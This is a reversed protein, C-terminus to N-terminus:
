KFNKVSTKIVTERDIVRYTKRRSWGIRYLKACVALGIVGIIICIIEM